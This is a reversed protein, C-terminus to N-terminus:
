VSSTTSAISASRAPSSAIILACRTAPARRIRSRTASIGFAVTTESRMDIKHM